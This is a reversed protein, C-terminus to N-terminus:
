FMVNTQNIHCGKTIILTFINLFIESRTSLILQLPENQGTFYALSLMKISHKSRPASKLKINNLM